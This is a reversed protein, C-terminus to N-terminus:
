LDTTWHRGRIQYGDAMQCLRVFACDLARRPAPLLPRDLTPSIRHRNTGDVTPYAKLTRRPRDIGGTTTPSQRNSLPRNELRQVSAQPSSSSASSCRSGDCWVECPTKASPVSNSRIGSPHPLISNFVAQLGTTAREESLLNMQLFREYSRRQVDILKPIELTTKIKSFNRRPVLGNGKGNGNLQKSM